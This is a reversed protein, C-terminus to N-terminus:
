LFRWNPVLEVKTITASLTIKNSGPVLLPFSGKMEKGLPDTDKYCELLASNIQVYGSVNTVQFSYSGISMNITGSGYIKLTPTSYYTGPNVLTTSSTLTIVKSGEVLYDFPEIKVEASFEYAKDFVREKDSIKFEKVKYYIEPDDTFKITKCNSFIPNVERLKKNVNTGDYINFDIPFPRDDYGDFMSVTGDRGPIEIYQMRKTNPPIAPRTPMYIKKDSLAYTNDIIMDFAM